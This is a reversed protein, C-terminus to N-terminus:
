GHRDARLMRKIRKEDEILMECRQNYEYDTEWTEYKIVAYRESGDDYYDQEYEIHFNELRLYDHEKMIDQCLSLVHAVSDYSISTTYRECKIRKIETQKKAM